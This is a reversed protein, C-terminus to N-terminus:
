GIRIQSFRVNVVNETETGDAYIRVQVAPDTATGTIAYESGPVGLVGGIMIHEVRGTRGDELTVVDGVTIGGFTEV